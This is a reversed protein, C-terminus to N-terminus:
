NAQCACEAELGGSMVNPLLTVNNPAMTTRAKTGLILTSATVVRDAANDYCDDSHTPEKATNFTDAM